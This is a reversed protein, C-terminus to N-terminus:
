NKQVTYVAKFYVTGTFTKSILTNRFGVHVEFVNVKKM